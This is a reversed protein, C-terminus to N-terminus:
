VYIYYRDPNEKLIKEWIYVHLVKQWCKEKEDWLKTGSKLDSFEALKKHKM